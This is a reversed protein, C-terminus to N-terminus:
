SGPCAAPAPANKGLFLRGDAGNKANFADLEFCYGRTGTTLVVGLKGEDVGQVLDYPFASVKGSCLVKVVRGDRILVVKCPGDDQEPDRYRWGRLASESGIIRWNGAPLPLLGTDHGSSAGVFRIAGGVGRPDGGSGSPAAITAPDVSVLKGRRKQVVDPLRNKVILRRATLLQATAYRQGFIGSSSGDQAGYGEWVAVFGGDRLPAVGPRSQNATTHSSVQFEGGEPEGTAAYRRGFVGTGSGDQGDSQWTAVFGAGELAAVVPARQDGTAYTSLQFEAGVATGDAAYRRGAVGYGSGDSGNSQWAVVFGGGELAALAPARQDGTTYTNVQLEGGQPGGGAAYRQASIGYGSGDPGGSQWAVLFGGDGAVAVAPFLQEATTFSNIQFEGGQASGTADYRQGFIGLSSGDQGADSTWVVVFGSATGGVAPVAQNVTTYSNVLFEAGQAAGTGDYRRAFVGYGSGDQDNAHWVVVFGGDGTSAVAPARQEGTTYTNVQLEGGQAAGTSDYRRGFVGEASGDEAYSQWVVVFGGGAAAVAPDRQYSTTHTNTQFEPGLRAAQEAPRATAAACLLLASAAV